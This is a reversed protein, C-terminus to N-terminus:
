EKMLEQKVKNMYTLPKAVLEKNLRFDIRGLREVERDITDVRAAMNANWSKQMASIKGNGGGGGGDESGEAM